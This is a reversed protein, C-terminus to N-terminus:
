RMTHITTISHQTLVHLECEGLILTFKLSLSALLEDLSASKTSSSGLDADVMAQSWM